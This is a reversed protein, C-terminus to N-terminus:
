KKQWKGRIIENNKTKINSGYYKMTDKMVAFKLTMLKGLTKFEM